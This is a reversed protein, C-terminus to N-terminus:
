PSVEGATIFGHWHEVRGKPTEDQLLISPRLTLDALGTGLVEWRGPRPFQADPVGRGVFLCIVSHTGVPGDNIKFCRPCLFVVGQAESVGDVRLQEKPGTIKLFRPQLLAM